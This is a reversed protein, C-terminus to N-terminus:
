RTHGQHFCPNCERQGICEKICKNIRYEIKICYNFSIYTHFFFEACSILVRFRENRILNLRVNSESEVKERLTSGRRLLKSAVSPLEVVTTEYENIEQIAAIASDVGRKSGCVHVVKYRAEYDLVVSYAEELKRINSGNKGIFDGVVSDHLAIDEEIVDKLSIQGGTTRFIKRLVELKRLGSSLESVAKRQLDLREQTVKAKYRLADIENYASWQKIQNRIGNIERLYSAEETKSLNNTMMKFEIAKINENLNDESIRPKVGIEAQKERIDKQYERLLTLTAAVDDKTKALRDKIQVHFTESQEPDM